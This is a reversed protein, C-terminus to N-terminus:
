RVRRAFLIYCAFSPRMVTHRVLSIFTQMFAGDSAAAPSHYDFRKGVTSDPILRLWQWQATDSVMPQNVKVGSRWGAFM